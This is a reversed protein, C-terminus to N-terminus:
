GVLFVFEGSDITFSVKDLGVVDKDYVVTVDKFEIM